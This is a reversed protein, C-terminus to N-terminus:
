AWKKLIRIIVPQMIIPTKWYTSLPTQEHDQAWWNSLDALVSPFISLISYVYIIYEKMPLWWHPATASHHSGNGGFNGPELCSTHPIEWFDNERNVGGLLSHTSPENWFKSLHFCHLPSHCRYTWICQQRYLNVTLWEVRWLPCCKIASKYPTM